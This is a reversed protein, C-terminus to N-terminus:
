RGRGGHSGARGACGPLNGSAEGSRGHRSHLVGSLNRRPRRRRSPDPRKWSVGRASDALSHAIGLRGRLRDTVNRIGNPVGVGNAVGPEEILRANKMAVVWPAGNADENVVFDVGELAEDPRMRRLMEQAAAVGYEHIARADSLAPAEADLNKLRYTNVPKFLRDALDPQCM